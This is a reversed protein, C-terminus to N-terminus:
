RGIYIKVFELFKVIFSTKKKKVYRERFEKILATHLLEYNKEVLHPAHDTMSM